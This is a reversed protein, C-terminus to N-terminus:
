FASFQYRSLLETLNLGQAGGNVRGSRAAYGVGFM